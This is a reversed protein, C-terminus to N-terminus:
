SGDGAETVRRYLPVCGDMHVSNKDHFREWGAGSSRGTPHASWGIPEYRAAERLAQEREGEANEARNIAVGLATDMEDLAAAADYEAVAQAEALNENAEHLKQEVQELVDPSVWGQQDLVALVADAESRYFELDEHIDPTTTEEAALDQWPVVPEGDHARLAEALTERLQERDRM